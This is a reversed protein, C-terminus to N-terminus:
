FAMLSPKMQSPSAQRPRSSRIKVIQFVFIYPYVHTYLLYYRQLSEVHACHTAKEAIPTIFNDEKSFFVMKMSHTFVYAPVASNLGYILIPISNYAEM